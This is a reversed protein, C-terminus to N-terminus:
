KKEVMGGSVKEGNKYEYDMTINGDDDYYRFHGDQLGDKYESEQRLKYSKPDFIKVSGNLKGNKYQRTEMVKGFKYQVWPGDFVGLHYNLRQDIQGRFSLKLSPGELLGNVYHQISTPDGDTNYEMWMGTRKDGDMYGEAAVQGAPDKRSIYKVTTGPIDFFEFGTLDGKGAKPANPKCGISMLFVLCGCLIFYSSSFITQPLNKMLINTANVFLM